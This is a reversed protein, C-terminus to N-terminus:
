PIALQIDIRGNSLLSLRFSCGCKLGQESRAAERGLGPEIHDDPVFGVRDDASGLRGLQDVRADAVM